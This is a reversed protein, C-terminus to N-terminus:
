RPRLSAVDPGVAIARAICLRQQQGGSVMSPLKEAQEALGVLELLEMAREKREKMETETQGGVRIISVKGSLKGIRERLKQADFDNKASSLNHKLAQIREDVVPQDGAGNVILTGDKTSTVREAQGLHEVTADELKMGKNQSIVTGDTLIAIDELMQEQNPGFGPARSALIQTSSNQKTYVFSQLANGSVEPAIVVLRDIGRSNMNDLLPKLELINYVSQDTILIYPNDVTAEARAEDTIFYPSIFGRDWQMGGQEEMYTESGKHEEVTVIGDAGADFVTEGVLQGLVEDEASITAVQVAQKVSEIHISQESLQQTLSEVSQELGRRLSMANTGAAIRKNAAQLIAHALIITVTTGDGVQEVQRQAAERLIRVAFNEYPDKPHIQRAVEVGDHKVWVEHGLDAGVNRGRPGLTTSVTRYLVEVGSLIKARADDGFLVTTQRRKAM